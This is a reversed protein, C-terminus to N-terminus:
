VAAGAGAGTTALALPKASALFSPAREGAMIVVVRCPERDLPVLVGGASAAKDGGGGGGGAEQLQRSPDNRRRTCLLVLLAVVIVAMMAAVGLFLYPTPTRWLSPHRVGGGPMPGAAVGGRDPRM